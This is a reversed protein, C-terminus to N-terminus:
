LGQREKSKAAVKELKDFIQRVKKEADTSPPALQTDLKVVTKVPLPIPNKSSVMTKQAPAAIKHAEDESFTAPPM